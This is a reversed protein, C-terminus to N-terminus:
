GPSDKIGDLIRTIPQTVNAIAYGELTAQAVGHCFRMTACSENLTRQCMHSVTSGFQAISFAAAFVNM